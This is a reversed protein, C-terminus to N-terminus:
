NELKIAGECVAELTNLQESTGMIILSDGATVKEDASPNALLSGTKRNLALITARSCKRIDEITLGNLSSDTDIAVNEMQLDPGRQRTITDLFDMVTPRLALMAMRRAGIANPSVIRNAGIRRLKKEVEHDSARATIFLSPYLGRASLTIYTNDIDSGLAAVLGRAKEIGAKKLVEDSTADGEIYLFGAQDARATCEPRNDIVVFEVDEEKFIHAIEEGVRGFGCLIFHEKLQSIKNEMVRKGWTAGINGEVIYTIIGTLAYFAGGMGGLILFISFIRGGDSLPHVERYGVTTITTITMYISDLFSWGEIIEYGITGIAITAVLALTGWIVKNFSKM